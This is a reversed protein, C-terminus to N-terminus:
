PDTKPSPLATGTKKGKQLRRRRLLWYPMAAVIIIILAAPLVRRLTYYRDYYSYDVSRWNTVDDKEGSDDKMDQGFSYLDYTKNGYKAPNTYVYPKKWPDVPIEKPIYPGRWNSVAGPNRRLAELGEETTPYRGTDNKFKDLSQGFLYIQTIAWEVKSDVLRGRHTCLLLVIILIAVVALIRGIIKGSRHGQSTM